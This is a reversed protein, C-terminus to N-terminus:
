KHLIKKLFFKQKNMRYAPRNEKKYIIPIGIVADCTSCKLKPAESKKFTEFQRRNLEKPLHIRDLYCRLLKGPGDKQYTALYSSCTRCFIKILQPTGRSKTYSNYIIKIKNDVYTSNEPNGQLKGRAYFSDIQKHRSCILLSEEADNRDKKIM